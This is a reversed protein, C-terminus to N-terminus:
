GTRRMRRTALRTAEQLELRELKVRLKALAGQVIQEARSVSIGEHFAIREYSVRGRSVLVLDSVSVGTESARCRCEGECAICGLTM